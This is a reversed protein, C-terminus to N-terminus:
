RRAAWLELMSVRCQLPLDLGRVLLMGPFDLVPTSCQHWIFVFDHRLLAAPRVYLLMDRTAQIGDRYRYLQHHLAAYWHVDEVQVGVPERERYLSGVIEDVLRRVGLVADIAPWLRVCAM